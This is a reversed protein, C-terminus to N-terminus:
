SHAVNLKQAPKKEDVVEEKKPQAAFMGQKIVSSAPPTVLPTQMAQLRANGLIEIQDVIANLGSRAECLPALLAETEAGKEIFFARMAAKTLPKESLLFELLTKAAAEKQTKNFAIADAAATSVYSVVRPIVSNYEYGDDRNQLYLETFFYLVAANHYDDNEKYYKSNKVADRVNLSSANIKDHGPQCFIAEVYAEWRYCSMSAMSEFIIAPNSALWSTGRIIQHYHKKDTEYYQDHLAKDAGLLGFCDDRLKKLVPGLKYDGRPANQRLQKLMPIAKNAGKSTPHLTLPNEYGTFAAVLRIKENDTLEKERRISVVNEDPVAYTLGKDDIIRNLVTKLSIPYTRDESLIIDSDKTIEKGDSYTLVRLSPVLIKAPSEHWVPSLMAAFQWLLANADTPISPFYDVRTNAVAENRKMFFDRVLTTLEDETVSSDNAKETLERLCHITNQSDHFVRTVQFDIDFMNANPILKVNTELAEDYARLRKIESARAQETSAKLLANLFDPNRLVQRIQM